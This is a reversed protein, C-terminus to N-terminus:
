NLTQKPFWRQVTTLEEDAVCYCTWLQSNVLQVLLYTCAYMSRSWEAHLIIYDETCTCHRSHMLYWQFRKCMLNIHPIAWICLFLILFQVGKNLFYSFHKLFTINLVKQFMKWPSPHLSPHTGLTGNRSSANVCALITVHILLARNIDLFKYRPCLLKYISLSQCM